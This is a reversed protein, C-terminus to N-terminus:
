SVRLTFWTSRLGLLYRFDDGTVTVTGRTGRLTVSGVRGGWQGNGDRGSVRISTLGGVAPWARELDADTLRVTWRHHPNGSWGDYPDKKAPLYGFAGRSTWGGSSASFQTFAPKGGKTLVRGRTAAVAKDAAPHEAATGGYVQCAETGCIDYHAAAPHNREYAAYTRAAVAQARIAQQHWTSAIVESPVVGRLYDELGVVNVVDGGVARVAGRYRTTSGPGTRVRLPKGGAALEATGARHGLRQWRGDVRYSVRSRDGAVPRVRWATARPRKRDLKWAKGGGPKRVVLGPRATVVAAATDAVKVRLTGGARGQSLGPYYFRLIQRHTRGQRAAGEAGWQSMGHGHGYGHGVVTITASRPVEWTRATAAAPLLAALVALVTVLGLRM